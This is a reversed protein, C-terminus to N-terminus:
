SPVAFFGHFAKLYDIHQSMHLYSICAYIQLLILQVVGNPILTQALCKVTHYASIEEAV